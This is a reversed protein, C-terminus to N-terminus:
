AAAEAARAQRQGREVDVLYLLLGGLLFFVVV